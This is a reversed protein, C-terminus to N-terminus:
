KEPSKEPTKPITPVPERDVRKLRGELVVYGRDSLINTVAVRNNAWTKDSIGLLKPILHAHVFGEKAIVAELEAPYDRAPRGLKKTVTEREPPTENEDLMRFRGTDRDLCLRMPPIPSEVDKTKVCRFTVDSTNGDKADVMFCGETLSLFAQSGLMSSAKSNTSRGAEKSPKSTHHGVLITLHHKSRLQLLRQMFPVVQEAKNVDLTSATLSAITDLVLITPEYRVLLSRLWRWGQESHLLMGDPPTQYLFAGERLPFDPDGQGHLKKLRRLIRAANDESGYVWLVREQRGGPPLHIHLEESGFLTGGTTVADLGLSMMTWSKGSAPPGFFINVSERVILRDVFMEPAAPEPGTLTVAFDEAAAVPASDEDFEALRARAETLRQFAATAVGNGHERTLLEHQTGADLIERELAHRKVIRAYFIANAPTPVAGVIRALYSQGGIRELAGRTALDAKLLVPDCAADREWLGRISAFVDNHQERYFDGRELVDLVDKASAPDEILLLSGLVGVEADLDHPPIHESM